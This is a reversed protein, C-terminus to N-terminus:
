GFASPCSVLRAQAYHFPATQVVDDMNNGTAVNPDTAARALPRHVANGDPFHYRYPEDIERQAKEEPYDSVASAQIAPSRQTRQPFATSASPSFDSSRKQFINRPQGSELGWYKM